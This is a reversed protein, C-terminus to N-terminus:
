RTWIRKKEEGHHCADYRPDSAGGSQIEQAAPSSFSFPYGQESDMADLLDTQEEKQFPCSMPQLELAIKKEDVMDMLEPFRETLRIPLISRM